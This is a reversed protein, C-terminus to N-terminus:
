AACEVAQMRISVSMMPRTIFAVQRGLILVAACQVPRPLFHTSCFAEDCELCMQLL